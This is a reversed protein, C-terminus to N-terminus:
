AAPTDDNDKLDKKATSEPEMAKVRNELNTLVSYVFQLCRFTLGLFVMQNVSKGDGFGTFKLFDEAHPGVLRENPDVIYNWSDIPMGLIKKATKPHVPKFKEKLAKASAATLTGTRSMRGGDTVDQDLSTRFTMANGTSEQVIDVADPNKETDAQHFQICRNGDKTAGCPLRYVRLCGDEDLDAGLDWYRRDRSAPNRKEPYWAKGKPM